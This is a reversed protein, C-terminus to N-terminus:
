SRCAGESHLNKGTGLLSNSAAAIGNHVRWFAGQILPAVVPRLVVPASPISPGGSQPAGMASGYPPVGTWNYPTTQARRLAARQQLSDPTDAAQGLAASSGCLIVFLCLRKWTRCCM